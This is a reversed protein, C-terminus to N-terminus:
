NIISPHGKTNQLILMEPTNEGPVPMGTSLSLDDSVIMEPVISGPVPMYSEPSIENEENPQIPIFSVIGVITGLGVICAIVGYSIITKKKQQLTQMKRWFGIDM